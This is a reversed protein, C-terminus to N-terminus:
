ELQNLIGESPKMKILYFFPQNISLMTFQYVYSEQKCKQRFYKQVMKIFQKYIKNRKYQCRIVNNIQVCINYDKFPVEFISSIHHSTARESDKTLFTNCGVYSRSLPVDAYCMKRMRKYYKREIRRLKKIDQENM